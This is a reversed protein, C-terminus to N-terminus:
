VGVVMAQVRVVVGEVRREYAPLPALRRPLSFKQMVVRVRVARLPCPVGCSPLVSV